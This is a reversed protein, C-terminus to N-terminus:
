GSLPLISLAKWATKFYKQYTTLAKSWGLHHIDELVEARVFYEPTVNNMLIYVLHDLRPHLLHHLFDHKLQRWFNEVNMTTRLRSIWPCTSRAWLKWMNPSYWSTWFYAWVESLGRQWCFMYMETVANTRIEKASYTGDREPFQPHQCFHKTFLRPLQKRHPAPCFVYDPKTSKTEGNDFLWDPGDEDDEKDDDEVAEDVEDLLEGGEKDEDEGEGADKEDLRLQSEDDQTARKHIRILIREHQPICVPQLIGNLRITLHPIANSAPKAQAALLFRSEM